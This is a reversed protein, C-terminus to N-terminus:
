RSTRQLFEDLGARAERKVRARDADLRSRARFSGAGPPCDM